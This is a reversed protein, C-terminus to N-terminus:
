HIVPYATATQPSEDDDSGSIFLLDNAKAELIIMSIQEECQAMFYKFQAFTVGVEITL